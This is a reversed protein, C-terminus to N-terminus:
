SLHDTQSLFISLRISAVLNIIERSQWSVHDSVIHHADYATLKHFLVPILKPKRYLINMKPSMDEQVQFNWERIVRIADWSPWTFFLLNQRLGAKKKKKKKQKALSVHDIVIHHANHSIVKHFLVLIFKPKKYLINVKPSMDELVQCPHTMSDWPIQGDWQASKQLYPSIDKSSEAHLGLGHAIDFTIDVSLKFVWFM